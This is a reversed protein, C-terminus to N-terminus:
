GQMCSAGQITPSGLVLVGFKPHALGSCGLARSTQLGIHVHYSSIKNTILELPVNISHTFAKENVCEEITRLQKNQRNKCKEEIVSLFIHGKQYICSLIKALINTYPVTPYSPDCIMEAIQRINQQYIQLWHIIYIKMRLISNHNSPGFIMRYLIYVDKLIYSIQKGRKDIIRFRKKNM